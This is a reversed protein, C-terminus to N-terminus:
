LPCASLEERASRLARIISCKPGSRIMCWRRHPAEGCLAERIADALDRVGYTDLLDTLQSVARALPQGREALAAFLQESEPVLQRLRDVGRHRRAAKKEAILKEVHASNEIQGGRDYSREHEAIVEAGLIFRSSAERDRAARPSNTLTSHSCARTLRPEVEM